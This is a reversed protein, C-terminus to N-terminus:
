EHIGTNPMLPVSTTVVTIVPAPTVPVVPEVPIVPEVPVKDAVVVDFLMDDACYASCTVTTTGIPFLSGSAPVCTIEPIYKIKNTIVPTFNVAVGEEVIADAYITDLQGIIPKKKCEEDDHDCDGDHGNHNGNNGNNNGHGNNNNNQGNNGRTGFASNSILLSSGIIAGVVFVFAILLKIKM